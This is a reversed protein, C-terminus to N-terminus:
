EESSTIGSNIRERERKSEKQELDKSIRDGQRRIKIWNMKIAIM